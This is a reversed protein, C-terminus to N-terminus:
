GKREQVTAPVRARIRLLLGLASIAVGWSAVLVWLPLAAAHLGIDLDGTMRNAIIAGAIAVGLSMGIQRSTSAIGAAVGAQSAPPSSVASNTIPANILGVGTGFLFYAVVFCGLPAHAPLVFIMAASAAFATGAAILPTAPGYKGVLSGSLPSFMISMLAVPLMATGAAFPSLGQVDQLYLTNVFLFGGISAFAMIAAAIATSLNYSRFFRLDILPQEARWECIIWAVFSVVSIAILSLTLWADWGRRPGEIISGTACAMLVLMLIQGLLDFRRVTAAKSNPVFHWTLLAGLLVVPLNIWFISRWGITSVLIGGLMPGAAAGLGNVAGWIGIAKARERADSFTNAIIAMAVPNLMSGGFAQFIRAAVLQAPNLVFSCLLSGTGFLTM